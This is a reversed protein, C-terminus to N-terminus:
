FEDSEDLEEFDDASAVKAGDGFREGDKVFQIGLLNANVRKGYTNNQFWLSIMGNVYCGAYVVEDDEVLPTRDRDIVTPRKTNGAKIVWMDRYEEYDKEDAIEDGDILCWKSAPVKAKNATMIEQIAAKVAEYTKKDSKPFLLTAEYKDSEKGEYTGKKFITPYSLRANKIIINAMKYGKLM